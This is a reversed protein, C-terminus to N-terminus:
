LLDVLSGRVHTISCDFKVLTAFWILSIFIILHFVVQVIGFVSVFRHCHRVHVKPEPSSFIIATCKFDLRIKCTAKYSPSKMDSLPLMIIVNGSCM